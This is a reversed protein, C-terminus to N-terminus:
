VWINKIIEDFKEKTLLSYTYTTANEIQWKIGKNTDSPQESIVEEEVNLSTLFEEITIKM